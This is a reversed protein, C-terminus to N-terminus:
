RGAGRIDPSTEDDIRMTVISWFRLDAHTFSEKALIVLDTEHTSIPFRLPM